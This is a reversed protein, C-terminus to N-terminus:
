RPTARWSGTWRRTAPTWSCRVRESRRWSPPRPSSSSERGGPAGSSTAFSRRASRSTAAAWFSARAASRPSSSGATGARPSSRLRDGGRRGRGRADGPRAGAGRRRRGRRADEARGAPRRDGAGDVWARPHTAGRPSARGGRRRHGRGRRGRDPPAPAKRGQMAPARAAGRLQGLARPLDRRPPVDDEDLDVGGAVRDAPARGPAGPLRSCGRRRDGPRHRLRGLPDEGRGPDRSGPRATAWRRWSTAHRATAAPSSCCTWATSPWSAPSDRTDAATTAGPAIPRDGASADGCGRASAEGMELPGALLVPPAGPPRGRALLQRM